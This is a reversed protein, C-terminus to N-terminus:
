CETKLNLENWVKKHTKSYNKLAGSGPGSELYKCNQCKMQISLVPICPLQMHIKKVYEKMSDSPSRQMYVQSCIRNDKETWQHKTKKKDTTNPSMM